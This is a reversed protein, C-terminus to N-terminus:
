WDGEAKEAEKKKEDDFQESLIVTSNLMLFGGEEAIDYYITISTNQGLWSLEYFGEELEERGYRERCITELLDYNDEGDFYLSVLFFRGEYFKYTIMWFEASGISMKDDPLTYRKSGVSDDLYEMKESPPDGWKLGRFGDPENQFAFAGASLALVLVVALVLVKKM